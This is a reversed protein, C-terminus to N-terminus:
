NKQCKFFFFIHTEKYLITRTLWYKCPVLLLAYTVSKKGSGCYVSKGTIELRNFIIRVGSCWYLASLLGTSKWEVMQGLSLPSVFM